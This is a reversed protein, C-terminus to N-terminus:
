SIRIMVWSFKMNTNKKERLNQLASCDSMSIGIRMLCDVECGYLLIFISQTWMWCYRHTLICLNKEYSMNQKEKMFGFNVEFKMIKFRLFSGVFLNLLFRYSLKNRIVRSNSNGWYINPIVSIHDFPNELKCWISEFQTEAFIVLLSSVYANWVCESQMNIM